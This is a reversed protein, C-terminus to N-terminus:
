VIGGVRATVIGGEQEWTDLIVNMGISDSAMHGAEIVTCSGLKNLKEVEDWHLAMVILTGVGAHILAEIEEYTPGCVGSFWTLVKGAYRNPDGVWVRPKQQTERYERIEQLDELIDKVKLKPYKDMLVDCRKQVIQEGIKDAPTHIGLLPMHLLQAMQQTSALNLAHFQYDTRSGQGLNLGQAIHIPVGADMLMAEHEQELFDGVKAMDPTLHHHRAVCDYGMMKAAVIEAPSIDIGALVKTVHEGEVQIGADKPVETLGALRLAINLMEKTTM